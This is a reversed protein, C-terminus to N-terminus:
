PLSAFHEALAEIDSNSLESLLPDRAVGEGHPRNGSRMSQLTWATYRARQGALRPTGTSSGELAPGHCSTCRMRESLALGAPSGPLAEVRPPRLGAYYEALNEVDRQSLEDALSIMIPATRTRERFSRWQALFAAKPQGELRPVMAHTPQASAHCSACRAAALRAGAAADGARAGHMALLGAALAALV